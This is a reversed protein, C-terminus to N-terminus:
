LAFTARHRGGFFAEFSLGSLLGRLRGLTLAAEAAVIRSLTVGVLIDVVTTDNYGVAVALGGIAVPEAASPARKLSSPGSIM